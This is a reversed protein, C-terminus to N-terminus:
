LRVQSCVFVDVPKRFGVLSDVQTRRQEEANARAAKSRVTGKLGIM